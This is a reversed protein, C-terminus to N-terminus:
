NDKCSSLQAEILDRYKNFAAVVEPNYQKGSLRNIERVAEKFSHSLRYVRTNCIADTSDAVRCIGAGICIETGSLGEPYGSGDWAEHHQAAIRVIEPERLFISLIDRGIRVHTKMVEFERPSLRGPKLLIKDPIFIKGIDHLFAGKKIIEVQDHDNIRMGHALIGSVMSVRSLHGPLSPHRLRFLELLRILKQYNTM